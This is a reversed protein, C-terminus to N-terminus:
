VECVLLCADQPDKAPSCGRNDELNTKEKFVTDPLSLGTVDATHDLLPQKEPM